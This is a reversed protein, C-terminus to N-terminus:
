YGQHQFNSVRLSYVLDKLTQCAQCFLRYATELRLPIALFLFVNLLTNGVALVTSWNHPFYIFLKKKPLFLLLFFHFIGPRVIVRMTEYCSISTSERVIYSGETSSWDV